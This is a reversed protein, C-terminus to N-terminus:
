KQRGSRRSGWLSKRHTAARIKITIKMEPRAFSDWFRPLVLVEDGEVEIVVNDVNVTCTKGLIENLVRELGRSGELSNWTCVDEFPCQFREWRGSIPVKIYVVSHHSYFPELNDIEDKPEYAQPKYPQSEYSPPKYAQPKHTYNSLGTGGHAKKKYPGLGPAKTYQALNPHYYLGKRPKQYQNYTPRYPDLAPEPPFRSHGYANGSDYVNNYATQAM